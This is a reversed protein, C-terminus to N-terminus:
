IYHDKAVINHQLAILSLVSKFISGPPYQATIARNYLPKNPDNKLSLYAESRDRQISLDNPDYGPASVMALIEGTAPQIAIISGKKNQLLQEGYKQLDLDVTAHLNKGSVASTDLNGSNYRGVVRGINDQVVYQIGKKGRLIDEYYKELGSSGLYDGPLYNGHDSELQKRSVESIYGILQAAHPVPYSRTNRLQLSFGPFKYLYEQFSAVTEPKIKTLFAFPVSQSYLHSSWDKNLNTIFEQRDIHLLECFLSTDMGPDVQNYTVMIDYVPDNHVFLTSDRDYILGRSPYLINKQFVMARARDQYSRDLIQLQFCKAILMGAVIAILWRVTTSRILDEKKM